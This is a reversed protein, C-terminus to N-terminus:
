KIIITSTEIHKDTFLSLYYLGPPYHPLAITSANSFDGNMMLQGTSNILQWHKFSHANRIHLLGGSEVPNPFCRIENHNPESEIGIPTGPTYLIGIVKGQFPTSLLGLYSGFQDVTYITDASTNHWYAAPYGSTSIFNNAYFGFQSYCGTLNLSSADGKLYHRSLFTDTTDYGDVSLIAWDFSDPETQYTFSYFHPPGAFFDLYANPHFKISDKLAWENAYESFYYRYYTSDLNTLVSLDTFNILSLHIINGNIKPLNFTDLNFNPDLLIVASDNYFFSHIGERQYNYENKSIPLWTTDYTSLDYFKEAFVLRLSDGLFKGYQLSTYDVNKFIEQYFRMQFFNLDYELDWYYNSTDMETLPHETWIDYYMFWKEASDGTTLYMYYFPAEFMSGFYKTIQSIENPSYYDYHISDNIEDILIFQNSMANFGMKWTHFRIVHKGNERAKSIPILNEVSVQALSM